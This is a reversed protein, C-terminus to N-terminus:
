TPPEVVDEIRPVVLQAGARLQGLDLDPNYQQIL